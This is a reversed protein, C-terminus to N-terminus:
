SEMQMSHCLCIKTSSSSDTNHRYTLVLEKETSSHRCGRRKHRRNQLSPPSPLCLGQRWDQDAPSGLPKVSNPHNRMVRRAIFLLITVQCGNWSNSTYVQMQLLWGACSPSKCKKNLILWSITKTSISQVNYVASLALREDHIQERRFWCHTFDHEYSSSWTYQSTNLFKKVHKIMDGTKKLKPKLLWLVVSIENATMIIKNINWHSGVTLQPIGTQMFYKTVENM